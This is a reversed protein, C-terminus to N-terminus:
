IGTFYAGCKVPYVKIRSVNEKNKQFVSAQLAYPNIITSQSNFISFLISGGWNFESQKDEEFFQVPCAFGGWYSKGFRRPLGWYSKGFRGRNFV